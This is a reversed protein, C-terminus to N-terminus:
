ARTFIRDASMRAISLASSVRQAGRPQLRGTPILAVGNDPRKIQILPSNWRRALMAMFTVRGNAAM